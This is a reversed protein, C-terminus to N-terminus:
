SQLSGTYFSMRGNFGEAMEMYDTFAKTSSNYFQLIYRHCKENNGAKRFTNLLLLTGDMLVDLPKTFLLLREPMQIKYEKVWVSRNPDKLLWIDAYHSGLDTLHQVNHVMCLNGKLEALTIRWKDEENKRGLLPGKITKAKWEESELNFTAILNRGHSALYNDCLLFYLDGNVTAKHECSFSTQHFPGWPRPRWTPEAGDDMITGVECWPSHRRGNWRSSTEIVYLRLVKYDGSPVARGFSYDNVTTRSWSEDWWPRRAPPDDTGVVTFDRRSAPDIITAGLQMRDVFILDLRTPALLAPARVNFVRHVNGVDDLLRVELEPASGFVAVILPGARGCSRRAAHFAPDSILARWGKCVCRCRRLDKAPLSLLM